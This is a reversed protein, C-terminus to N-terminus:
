YCLKTKIRQVSHTAAFKKNGLRDNRELSSHYVTANPIKEAAM